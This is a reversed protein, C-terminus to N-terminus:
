HHHHAQATAGDPEPDEYAESTSGLAPWENMTSPSLLGDLHAMAGSQTVDTPNNYVAVLRYRRGGHL